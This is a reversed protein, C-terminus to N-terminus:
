TGQSSARLSSRPTGFADRLIAMSRWLGFTQPEHGTFHPEQKQQQQQQQQKSGGSKDRTRGKHPRVTGPRRFFCSFRTTSGLGVLFRYVRKRHRAEVAVGVSACFRRRSKRKWWKEPSMCGGRVVQRKWCPRGPVLRQGTHGGVVGTGSSAPTQLCPGGQCRGPLSSVLDRSRTGRTGSPLHM